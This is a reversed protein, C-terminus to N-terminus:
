FSFLLGGEQSGPRPGAGREGAQEEGRRTAWFEGSAWCDRPRTGSASVERKRQSALLGRGKERQWVPGV